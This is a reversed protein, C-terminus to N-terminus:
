QHARATTPHRLEFLGQSGGTVVYQGDVPAGTHRLRFPTLYALYREGASVLPECAGTLIVRPSGTQRLQITTPLPKGALTELVSAHTITFPLGDISLNRSETTPALVAISSAARGLARLSGYSTAADCVVHRSLTPATASGARRAGALPAYAFWGSRRPTSGPRALAYGGLCLAAVAVLGVPIWRRKRLMRM